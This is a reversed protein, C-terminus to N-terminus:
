GSTARVFATKKSKNKAYEKMNRAQFMRVAILSKTFWGSVFLVFSFFGLGFFLVVYNELDKFHDKDEPYWNNALSGIIADWSFLLALLIICGITFKDLLTLYSVSPLRQTIVWRFNISTLMLIAVITARNQPGTLGIAFTTFALM